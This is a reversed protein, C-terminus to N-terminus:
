EAAVTPTLTVSPTVEYEADEGTRYTEFPAYGEWAHLSQTTTFLVMDAATTYFVGIIESTESLNGQEGPTFALVIIPIEPFILNVIAQDDSVPTGIAYTPAGHAGIVQGLTMNPRPRVFVLNVVRGDEAVMQCCEPGGQVNWIAGIADTAEDERTQVNEFRADDEVFTLADRWLTEGPTIRNWCPATCPDGTVLSTDDVLTDDRLAPPPACAALLLALAIIGLMAFRAKM